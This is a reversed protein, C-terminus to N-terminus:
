PAHGGDEEEAAAARECKRACEARTDRETCHVRALEAMAAAIASGIVPAAQGLAACGAASLAAGLVLARLRM